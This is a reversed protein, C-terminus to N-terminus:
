LIFRFGSQGRQTGVTAVTEGAKVTQGVHKLLSDNNGYISLYSDGHDVILLNGFGCMWEAFVVKGSAVAKVDNGVGTRIFLGKWTGGGDRPGGFSRYRQWTRPATFQGKQRGFSGDNAVPEYRNETEVPKARTPEDSLPPAVEKKAIQETPRPKEKTIEKQIEKQKALEALRAAEKARAAEAARAALAAQAAGTRGINKITPRDVADNTKMKSCIASKKASLM